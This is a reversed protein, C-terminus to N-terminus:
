PPAVYKAAGHHQIHPLTLSPVIGSTQSKCQKQDSGGRCVLLCCGKLHQGPASEQTPPNTYIRPGWPGRWHIRRHSQCNRGSGCGGCTKVALTTSAKSEWAPVRRQATQRAGWNNKGTLGSHPVLQDALWQRVRGTRLGGSQQMNEGGQSGM